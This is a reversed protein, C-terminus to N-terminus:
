FCPSSAALIAQHVPLEGEEAVLVADALRAFQEPLNDLYQADRSDSLDTHEVLRRQAM